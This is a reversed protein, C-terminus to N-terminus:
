IEKHGHRYPRTKNYAMKLEIMRELGTQSNLCIGIIDILDFGLQGGDRASKVAGHFCEEFKDILGGGEHAEDPLQLDQATSLYGLLDMCRICIDALEEASALKTNAIKYEAFEDAILALCALARVGAPAVHLPGWFGHEVATEHAEKCLEQFNNLM